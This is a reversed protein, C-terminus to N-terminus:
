PSVAQFRSARIWPWISMGSLSTPWQCASRADGLRERVLRQLGNIGAVEAAGVLRRGRDRTAM